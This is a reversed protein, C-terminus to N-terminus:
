QHEGTLTAIEAPTLARDFLAVEDLRGEWNCVNDCRGGFFLHEYGPPFDAPVTGEIQPASEGNLYVRVREGDRVLVVHSWTWRPIETRGESAPQGEGHLFILKGQGGSTGGIGLHDGWADLVHDQGRSFFWGSVTRADNPMGNWIWMSLSYRDKLGPARVLLRDDVFHAARNKEGGTCFLDSRPGELYHAVQPEYIADRDHGSSDVARPGTFEDLRWYGIPRLALIAQVAPGRSLSVARRPRGSVQELLHIAAESIKREAQVELGASRAAWTNYGGLLHQEPPPIYGDGGNALEIVMTPQLPSRHKIKLGTLAYTENPTSAIGINGIRLAQVVVDTSQMEHLLVQERAYVEETTKPDRDGMADVIRQAWELRQKDPVRYNLHLRTEAMALDVDARYEIHEYAQLALKVLAAAYQEITFDHEPATPNAYDRRFIDGSCGHSMIGVFPARGAAVGPAIKEKLGECFQGFYDASLPQDGFYHMSFNALVAIPQGSTSQLSILSLDPDEPGSEGTVDDLNRAAHMNARLTPNGFPDKGIRDPRIIWRRLATFKEANIVGYGVRAPELNAQAAAVAEVLRAKLFPVYNPDATTGLCSESAPASHTHTASILIRDPRIGTRDSAFKKAEDLLDRPMMCSDVVVLVIQERGDALAVARAQVRTKVSDASKSLMSGNVIVPLQDPTVDVVAAGAQFEAQAWAPSLLLLGALFLVERRTM